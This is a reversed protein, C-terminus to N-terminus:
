IEIARVVAQFPLLVSSARFRNGRVPLFMSLDKWPGRPPDGSRLLMSEMWGCLKIMEEPAQGVINHQIVAAAASGLRCALVEHGYSTIIGDTVRLDVRISSGCLKGRM